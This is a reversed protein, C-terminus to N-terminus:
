NGRRDALRGEISRPSIGGALSLYCPPTRRYGLASVSIYIKKKYDRLSVKAALIGPSTSFILFSFFHSRGWWGIFLPCESITNPIVSFMAAFNQALYCQVLDVATGTTDLGKHPLYAFCGSLLHSLCLERV